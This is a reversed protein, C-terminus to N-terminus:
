VGSGRGRTGPCTCCAGARSERESMLCSVGPFPVVYENGLRRSFDSSKVTDRLRELVDALKDDHERRMVQVQRIAETSGAMLMSIHFLDHQNVLSQNEVIYDKMAKFAVALARSQRVAMDGRLVTMLM